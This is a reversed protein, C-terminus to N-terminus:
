GGVAVTLNSAAYGACTTYNPLNVAPVTAARRNSTPPIVDDDDAHYTVAPAAGLENPRTRAGLEGDSPECQGDAKSEPCVPRRTTLDPGFSLGDWRVPAQEALRDM